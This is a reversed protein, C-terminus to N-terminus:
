YGFTLEITYNYSGLTMGNGLPRYEVDLALTNGSYITNDSSYIFLEGISSDLTASADMYYLDSGTNNQVQIQGTLYDTAMTTVDVFNLTNLINIDAPDPPTTGGGGGGSSTVIEISGTLTKNVVNSAYVISTAIVLAILVSLVIVLKKKLYQQKM